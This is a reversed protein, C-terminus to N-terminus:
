DFEKWFKFEFIKVIFLSAEENELFFLFLRNARCNRQGISLHHVPPPHNALM